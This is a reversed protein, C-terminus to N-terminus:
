LSVGKLKLTKVDEKCNMYYNSIIKQTTLELKDIDVPIRKLLESMNRDVYEKISEHDLWERNYINDKDISELINVKYFLDGSTDYTITVKLFDDDIEQKIINKSEHSPLENLNPLSLQFIDFFDELSQLNTLITDKFHNVFEKDVGYSYTGSFYLEDTGKEKCIEMSTFNLKSEKFRIYISARGDDFRQLIFDVKALNVPYKKKFIKGLVKTESYYDEIDAIIKEEDNIIKHLNNLYCNLISILDYASITNENAIVEDYEFYKKIRELYEEYQQM